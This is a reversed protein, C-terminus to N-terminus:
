TPCSLLARLAATDAAAGPPQAVVATQGNVRSFVAPDLRSPSNPSPLSFSSLSFQASEQGSLSPGGRWGGEEEM